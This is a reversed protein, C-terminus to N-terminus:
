REDSPAGESPFPAAVPETKGTEEKLFDVTEVISFNTFCPIDNTMPEGHPVTFLECASSTNTDAEITLTSDSSYSHHVSSPSYSPQLWPHITLGRGLLMLLALLVLGGIIIQKGQTKEGKALLNVVRDTRIALLLALAIKLASPIIKTWIGMLQGEWLGYACVEAISRALGPIANALIYVGVVKIGAQLVVDDSLAPLPENSQIKLKDAIWETRALLLWAMGFALLAFGLIGGIQIARQGLESSEMKAVQGIFLAISSLYTLTWYIQLLGILKAFVIFIRRM